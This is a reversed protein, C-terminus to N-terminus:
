STRPIFSSHSAPAVTVARKVVAVNYRHSRSGFGPMVMYRRDGNRLGGYEARHRSLHSSRRTLLAAFLHCSTGDEWDILQVAGPVGRPGCRYKGSPEQCVRLSDALACLSCDITRPYRGSIKQPRLKTQM